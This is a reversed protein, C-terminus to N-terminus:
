DVHRTAPQAYFANQPDDSEVHAFHLADRELCFKARDPNEHQCSPGRMTGGLMDEPRVGRIGTARSSGRLTLEPSLLSPWGHGM